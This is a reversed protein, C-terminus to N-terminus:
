KMLNFAFEAPGDDDGTRALIRGVFALVMRREM